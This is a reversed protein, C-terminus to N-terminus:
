TPWTYHDWSKGFDSALVDKSNPEIVDRKMDAMKQNPSMATNIANGVKQVTDKMVSQM